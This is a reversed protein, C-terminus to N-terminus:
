QVMSDKLNQNIQALSKLNFRDYIEFLKGVGESNNICSVKSTDLKILIEKLKHVLQQHNEINQNLSYTYLIRILEQANEPRQLEDLKTLLVIEIKDLLKYNEDKLNKNTGYAYVLYSLEKLNLFHIANVFLTHLKDYIYLYETEIDTFIKIIKSLDSLSMEFKCENVRKQILPPFKERFKKSKVFSELVTCIKDSKLSEINVGIYREIELYMELSGVELESFVKLIQVVQDLSLADINKRFSEESIKALESIEEKYDFKKETLNEKNQSFIQLVKIQLSTELRNFSTKIAPFLGTLIENFNFKKIKFAESSEIVKVIQNLHKEFGESKNLIVILKSIEDLFSQEQIFDVYCRLYNILTESNFSLVKDRTLNSFYINKLLVVNPNSPFYDDFSQFFEFIINPGMKHFNKNFLENLNKWFAFSNIELRAAEQLVRPIIEHITFSNIINKNIALEFYKMFLTQMQGRESANLSSEKFFNLVSIYYERRVINNDLNDMIKKIAPDINLKEDIKTTSFNFCALSIKPYKFKSTLHLNSFIKSSYKPIHRFTLSIM